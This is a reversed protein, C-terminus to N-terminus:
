NFHKLVFKFTIVCNVTIIFYQSHVWKTCCIKSHSNAGEVEGDRSVRRRVLCGSTTRQRHTQKKIKEYESYEM